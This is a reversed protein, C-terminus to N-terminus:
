YFQDQHYPRVNCNFAISIRDEDSKNEAVGHMLYAPFMLLLGVRPEISIAKHQYGQNTFDEKYSSMEDFATFTHPNNFVIHGCNKPCQVFYVGSFNAQPHNHIRNYAGKGNINIWYNVINLNGEIVNCISEKFIKYLAPKIVLDTEEDTMHPSRVTGTETNEFMHKSQYGKINSINVSEPNDKRKKLCYPKIKKDLETEVIHLMTPFWCEARYNM